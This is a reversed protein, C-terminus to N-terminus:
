GDELTGPVQDPQLVAGFSSLPLRGIDSIAVSKVAVTLRLAQPRNHHICRDHRDARQGVCNFDPTL